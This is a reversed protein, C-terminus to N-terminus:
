FLRLMHSSQSSRARLHHSRTKFTSVSGVLHIEKPFFGVLIESPQTKIKLANAGHSLFFNFFIASAKDQCTERDEPSTQGIPFTHIEVVLMQFRKQRHSQLQGSPTLRAAYLPEM